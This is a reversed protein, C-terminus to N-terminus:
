LSPWSGGVSPWSLLKESQLDIVLCSHDDKLAAVQKRFDEELIGSCQLYNEWIPHLYAANTDKFVFVLDMMNRTAHTLQNMNEIAFLVTFHREELIKALSDQNSRSVRTSKKSDVVLFKLSQKHRVSDLLLSTVLHDNMSKHMEKKVKVDGYVPTLGEEDHVIHGCRFKINDLFNKILTSKGKGNKGYVMINKHEVNEPILSFIENGQDESDPAPAVSASRCLLNGM